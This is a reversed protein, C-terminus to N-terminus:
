GEGGVPEASLTDPVAQVVPLGSKLAADGDPLRTQNPTPGPFQPNAKRGADHPHTASNIGPGTFGQLAGPPRVKVRTVRAPIGMAIGQPPIDGRLLAHTALM